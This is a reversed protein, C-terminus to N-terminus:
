DNSIGRYINHFKNMVGHADFGSEKMQLIYAGPNNRRVSLIDNVWEDRSESLSHPHILDTLFVDKPVGTSIVCPLGNCQVEIISLPMGEYLSPFVFVDFASLYENVNMVNGTMIVKDNLNLESIKEELMKRDEGEGLLLLRAEPRKKLIEPMLSILFTQNKVEALHGVHGIVFANELSHKKRIEDRNIESFSFKEADVGNLILQGRKKYARKGFLREGAANGCSVLNTSCSLILFRMLTEYVVKKMGGGNDLASHAHTVRVPVKSKKAALMVWGANFMTHAHVATYNYEGMLKLLSNYFAKYSKYPSDWHFVKCGHATLDDEYEGKEDGFVIYHSEFENRDAYMGIDRAVKEAGGIHLSAIVHLIYKMYDGIEIFVM